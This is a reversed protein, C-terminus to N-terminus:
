SKQFGLNRLINILSAPHISDYAKKFDVFLIYEDKNFEWMKQLTQRIVFIQDTTSTNPRFGGQYDGIIEKAIPRIRDLLCYAFIKYTVNVLTIGRYNIDPPWEKQSYHVSACYKVEGPAKRGIM